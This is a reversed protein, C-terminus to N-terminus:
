DTEFPDPDLSGYAGFIPLYHRAPHGPNCSQSALVGDSPSHDVEVM